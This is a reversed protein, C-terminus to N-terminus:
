EGGDDERANSKQDDRGDQDRNHGDSEYEGQNSKDDNKNSGTDSAPAPASEARDLAENVTQAQDTTVNREFQLQTELQGLQAELVALEDQYNAQDTKLMQRLRGIHQQAAEIDLGAQGIQSNLDDLQTLLQSLQRGAAADFQALNQQAEAVRATWAATQARLDTELRTGQARTQFAQATAAVNISPKLGPRDAQIPNILIFLSLVLGIGLIIVILSGSLISRAYHKM